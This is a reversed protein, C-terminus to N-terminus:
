RQRIISAFLKSERLLSVTVLFQAQYDEKSYGADDPWRRTLVNLLRIREVPTMADVDHQVDAVGLGWRSLRKSVLPGHIITRIAASVSEGGVAVEGASGVAGLAFLAAGCCIARLSMTRSESISLSM